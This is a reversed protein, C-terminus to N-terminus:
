HIIFAIEIKDWVLVEDDILLKLENVNITQYKAEDSYKTNIKIDDYDFHEIFAYRFSLESVMIEQVQKNFSSDTEIIKVYSGDEHESQSKM